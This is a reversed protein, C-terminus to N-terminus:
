ASASPRISRSPADSSGAATSTHDAAWVCACMRSYRRRVSPLYRWSPGLHEGPSLDHVSQQVLDREDGPAVRADAAPHGEGEGGLAGVHGDGVVAVEFLGLGD